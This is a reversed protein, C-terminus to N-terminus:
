AASTPSMLASVLLGSEYIERSRSLAGLPGVPTVIIFDLYSVCRDAKLRIARSLIWGRLGGLMTRDSRFNIHVQSQALMGLLCM